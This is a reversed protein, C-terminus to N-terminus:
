SGKKTVKPTKTAPKQLRPKKVEPKNAELKGNYVEITAQLDEDYDAGDISSQESHRESDDEEDSAYVPAAPTSNNSRSNPSCSSSNCSPLLFMNDFLDDASFTRRSGAGAAASKASKATSPLPPSPSRSVSSPYCCIGDFLDDASISGGRSPKSFSM